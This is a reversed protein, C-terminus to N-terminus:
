PGRTSPDVARLTPTKPFDQSLVRLQAHAGTGQITQIDNGHDKLESVNMYSAAGTGLFVVHKLNKCQRALDTPVYSHDDIIVDYDGVISPLDTKEFPTTNIIVAPDDPRYVRKWVAGLQQNCDIFTTKM